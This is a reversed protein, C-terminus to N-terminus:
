LERNFLAISADGRNEWMKKIEDLKSILKDLKNKNFTSGKIIEIEKTIKAVMVVCFKIAESYKEELILNKYATEPNSLVNESIEEIILGKLIKAEEQGMALLTTLEEKNLFVGKEGKISDQNPIYEWDGLHEAILHINSDGDNKVEFEGGYGFNGDEPMVFSNGTGNFEKNGFIGALIFIVKKSIKKSIGGIKGEGTNIPPKYAPREEGEGLFRNRDSM